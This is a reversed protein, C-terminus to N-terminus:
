KSKKSALYGAKFGEELKYLIEAHLLEEVSLYLDIPLSNALIETLQTYLMDKEISKYENSNLYEQFNKQYM